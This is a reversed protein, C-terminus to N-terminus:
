LTHSCLNCNIKNSIYSILLLAVVGIKLLWVHEANPKNEKKRCYSQLRKSMSAFHGWIGQEHIHWGNTHSIFPCHPEGTLRQLSHHLSQGQAASDEYPVYCLSALLLNLILLIVIFVEFIICIYRIAMFSTCVADVVFTGCESSGIMELLSWDVITM